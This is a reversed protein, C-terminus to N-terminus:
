VEIWVATLHHSIQLLSLVSPSLGQFGSSGIQISYDSKANFMGTGTQINQLHETLQGMTCYRKRMAQYFHRGDVATTRSCIGALQITVCGFAHPVRTTLAFVLHSYEDTKLSKQTPTNRVM